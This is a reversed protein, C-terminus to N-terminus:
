QPNVIAYFQEGAVLATKGGKMTKLWLAAEEGGNPHHAALGMVPWCIKPARGKWTKDQHDGLRELMEHVSAVSQQRNTNVDYHAKPKVLFDLPIDDNGRSDAALKILATSIGTVTVDVFKLSLGEEDKAVRQLTTPPLLANATPHSSPQPTSTRSM